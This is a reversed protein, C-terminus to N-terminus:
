KTPLIQQNNKKMCAAKMLKDGISDPVISLDEAVNAPQNFMNIVKGGGYSKEYLVTSLLKHIDNKCDYLIKNKASLYFQGSSFERPEAYNVMMWSTAKGGEKKITQKDIYYIDPNDSDSITIATWEAMASTSILTLLLILKKM